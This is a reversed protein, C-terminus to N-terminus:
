RKKAAKKVARRRDGQDGHGPKVTTKAARQRDAGLSRSVDDMESWTGDSARKVFRKDTGTDILERRTTSRKATKKTSTKAV